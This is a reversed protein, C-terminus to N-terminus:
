KVRREMAWGDLICSVLQLAVFILIILSLWRGAIGEINAVLSMYTSDSINIFRSIFACIGGIIVVMAIGAKDLSGTLIIFFHFVYSMIVTLTNIALALAFQNIGYDEKLIVMIIFDIIATMTISGMEIALFVIHKAISVEYGTCPLALRYSRWKTEAENIGINVSEFILMAFGLMPLYKIYIMIIPLLEEYKDLLIRLNGYDMSLIIVLSIAAMALASLLATLLPRKVFYLERYILGKLHTVM